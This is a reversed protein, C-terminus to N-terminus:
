HLINCYKLSKLYDSKLLKYEEQLYLNAAIQVETM